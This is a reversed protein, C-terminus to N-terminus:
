LRRGLYVSSFGSPLKCARQSLRCPTSSRIAHVDWALRAVLSVITGMANTPCRRDDGLIALSTEMQLRRVRDQAHLGHKDAM